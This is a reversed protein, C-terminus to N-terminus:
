RGEEARAPSSTPTPTPRPTRSPAPSPSPARATSPAASASPSPAPAPERSLVEVAVRHDKGGPRESFWAVNELVPDLALLYRGPAVPPVVRLVVPRRAGVVLPQGLETREGDHEVTRGDADLWHYALRVRAGGRNPWDAHGENRVTAEVRFPEGAYVAAPLRVDSWSAGFVDADAAGPAGLYLLEAGAYFSDPQKPQWPWGPCAAAPFEREWVRPTGRSTRLTMRYAYLTGTKITWRRLPSPQPIAVGRTEGAGLDFAQRWGGMALEVRNHDAASTVEFALPGLPHDAVLHLEVPTAGHVWARESLPLLVDRRGIMTFDGLPVRQYGPVNRLTLELPFWRFPLGRVHMQLTPEPGPLGFPALVLPSVFLGAVAYGAAVLARPRIRTVLFLFAPYVNVFYRNGVFGGGGQWNWAILLLFFLAVATVAGLLLWRPASRRGHALFLALSLVAFPMYLVLGTHRGLLFYLVNDAFESPSTDPPRFLWRYSNGTPSEKVAQAAGTPGVPTTAPAAM